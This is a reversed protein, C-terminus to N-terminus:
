FLNAYIYIWGLDILVAYRGKGGGSSHQVSWAIHSWVYQSDKKLLMSYANIFM